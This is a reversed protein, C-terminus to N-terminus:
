SHKSTRLDEVNSSTTAASTQSFDPCVGYYELTQERLSNLYQQYQEKYRRGESSFCPIRTRKRQQTSFQISATADKPDQPMAAVTRKKSLSRESSSKMDNRRATSSADHTPTMGANIIEEIEEVVRRSADSKDMSTLLRRSHYDYINHYESPNTWM